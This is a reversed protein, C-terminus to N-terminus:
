TSALADLTLAPIEFHQPDGASRYKMWGLATAIGQALPDPQRLRWHDSLRFVVLNNKTIFDNKGRSFPTPVRLRRPPMAVVAAVPPRLGHM